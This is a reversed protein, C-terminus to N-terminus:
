NIRKSGNCSILYNQIHNQIFYNQVPMNATSLLNWLFSHNEWYASLSNFELFTLSLSPSPQTPSHPTATEEYGPYTCSVPLPGQRHGRQLLIPDTGRLPPQPLAPTGISPTAWGCHLILPCLSLGHLSRSNSPLSWHKRWGSPGWIM